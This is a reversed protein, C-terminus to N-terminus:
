FYILLILSNFYFILKLKFFVESSVGYMGCNDVAKVDCAAKEPCLQDGCM